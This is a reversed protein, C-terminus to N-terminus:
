PEGDPDPRRGTPANGNPPVTSRDMPRRRPPGTAPPAKAPKPTPDLWVVRRERHERAGREVLIQAVRQRSIGYRRSLTEKTSGALWESEIAADRVARM